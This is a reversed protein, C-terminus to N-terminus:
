PIAYEADLNVIELKVLRGKQIRDKGTPELSSPYVWTDESIRIHLEVHPMYIAYSCEPYCEM